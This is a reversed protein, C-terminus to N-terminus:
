RAMMNEACRVRSLHRMARTKTVGRRAYAGNAHNAYVRRLASSLRAANRRMPAKNTRACIDRSQLAHVDRLATDQQTQAYACSM